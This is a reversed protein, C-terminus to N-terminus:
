NLVLPFSEFGADKLKKITANTDAGAPVYVAWYSGGNQTKIQASSQFGAKKLNESLARANEERSFLGTQLVTVGGSPAAATVPATPLAAPAAPAASATLGLNERGPFLIWLPTQASLVKDSTIKAEPSSPFDRTLLAKWGQNQEIVWLTYYIARRYESFDSDDALASLPRLNGSRFAELQAILFRGELMLEKTYSGTFLAALADLAKEYEGMSILLRGIELISRGDANNIKLANEWAKLAAENNGSLQYLRALALFASHREQSSSSSTGLMELRSIESVLSVPNEAAPLSSFVFLFILVFSKRTSGM